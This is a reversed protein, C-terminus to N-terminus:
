NRDTHDVEEVSSELNSGSDSQSVDSQNSSGSLSVTQFQATLNDTTQPSRTPTVPTTASHNEPPLMWVMWDGRKRIRDGQM